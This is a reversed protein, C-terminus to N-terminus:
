GYVRDITGSCVMDPSDGDSVGGGGLKELRESPRRCQTRTSVGTRGSVLQPIGLKPM